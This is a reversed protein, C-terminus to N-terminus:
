NGQEHLRAIWAILTDECPRVWRICRSDVNEVFAAQEQRDAILRCSERQTCNEMQATKGSCRLGPGAPATLMRVRERTSAGRRLPQRLASRPGCAPPMAHPGPIRVDVFHTGM